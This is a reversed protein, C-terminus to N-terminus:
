QNFLLNAVQGVGDDRAAHRGRVNQDSFEAARRLLNNRNWITDVGSHKLWRPAVVLGLAVANPRSEPKWWTSSNDGVKTKERLMLSTPDQKPRRRAHDGLPLVDM